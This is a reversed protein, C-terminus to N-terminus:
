LSDLEEEKQEKQSEKLLEDDWAVLIVRLVGCTGKAKGVADAFGKPVVALVAIHRCSDKVEYLKCFQCDGIRRLLLGDSLYGDPFLAQEMVISFIFESTVLSNYDGYNHSCKSYKEKLRDIVKDISFKNRGEPPDVDYGPITPQPKHIYYASYIRSSKTTTMFGKSDFGLPQTGGAIDCQSTKKGLEMGGLGTIKNRSVLNFPPFDLANMMFLVMGIAICAIFVVGWIAGIFDLTQMIKASLSKQVEPKAKKNAM